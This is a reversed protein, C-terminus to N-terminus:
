IGTVARIRPAIHQWLLPVSRRITAGVRAEIMDFGVGNRKWSLGGSALNQIPPQFRDLAKAFRADATEAAEFEDWLARLAAGESAPLIGFIRDAAALEAQAIEKQSAETQAYIPADGADIEVLDHLLLMRIVRFISVDIPAHDALALAYLALHWSHEASNEQRSGDCLTTARDIRKLQDAEALFACRATIAEAGLTLGSLLHEHLEPLTEALLRARGQRLNQQGVAVHDPRLPNAAFSQLVPLAYDVSKALRAPRSQRAEFEDWIGRLQAGQPAPLLGYIRDAASREARELAVADHPENIPQDGADIEVLDHLILMALIRDLEDPPLDGLWVLAALAAQWCHEAVNEQRSQDLLTSARIVGKLRDAETLFTIRAELAAPDDVPWRPEADM